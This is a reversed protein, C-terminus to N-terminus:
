WFSIKWQHLHDSGCIWMPGKKLTPGEFFRVLERFPCNNTFSESLPFPIWQVPHPSNQNSPSNHLQQIVQSIKIPFQESFIDLFFGLLELHLQFHRPFIWPARVDRFHLPGSNHQYLV